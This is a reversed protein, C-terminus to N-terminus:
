DGGGAGVSLSGKLDWRRWSRKTSVTEQIRVLWRGMLVRLVLSTLSRECVRGEKRLTLETEWGALWSGPPRFLRQHKPAREWHLPCMAKAGPCAHAFPNLWAVSSSTFFEYNKIVLRTPTPITTEKRDTGNELPAQGEGLIQVIEQCKQDLLTSWIKGM